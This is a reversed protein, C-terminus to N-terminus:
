RLRIAQTDLLTLVNTADGSTLLVMIYYTASTSYATNTITAASGFDEMWSTNSGFTSLQNSATVKFSKRNYGGANNTTTQQQALQTYSPPANGVVPLTTTLGLRIRNTGANRTSVWGVQTYINDWVSIENAPLTIFDAVVETISSTNFQATSNYLVKQRNDFTAIAWDYVAKVSPYKTDSSQDTTVSTSKNSVNEPTYGLATAISKKEWVQTSSNYFIGDNNTPSGATVDDLEDLTLGVDVKVYIKGHQSHTYEVFGIVVAKNPASPRVNTLAGATTASLYLVDGDNWTEGQLSGTTNIERVQGLTTVFGEQNANITETVVGLSVASNLTNDAQALAASIRQGTAGVIKVVQYNAELLNISPSTKNVVRALQEQGLQLTVNGGKLGLDATGDTDNWRFVGVGAAGTPTQDLAFQGAKLQHEGIDINSNANSGDRKLADVQTATTSHPNNTNSLHNLLNTGNTTIWTVASDYAAKLLNTLDNTSLGKGTVKDVKNNLAADLDTQDSLTGTIDGWEASGGGTGFDIDSVGEVTYTVNVFDVNIDITM